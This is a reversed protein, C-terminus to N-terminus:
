RPTRQLLEWFLINTEIGKHFQDLLFRENPAHLNDGPLGYGLLLTSLGLQELFGGVIPISGGSHTLLAPKGWVTEVAERAAHIAPTDSPVVVPDDAHLKVVEVDVDDPAFRRVAAAFLDFVAHAKQNPVLRMSIKASAEAPIVTKAGAAMFGGPMGHVDLTPRSWMRELPSFAADGILRKAGIESSLAEESGPLKSWSALVEEPPSQVEDYFRPITIVGKDDRLRSVIHALSIFPNPAVGGYEGSHLDHRNARVHVESYVIGRLGTLVSPTDRDFLSSDAVQAVDAALRPDRSRLFSKIHEGGSEEEGEILLRINVPLAQSTALYAEIANLQTAVQGKDDVAGRAYLYGDRVAPEFPPSDWLDVPDVPQVDYHGYILVTPAGAAHLWDAYVLPHTGPSQVVDINEMGIRKLSDSLRVAARRCDGAHEELTSISPIALFDILEREFDSRHERAYHRADEGNM